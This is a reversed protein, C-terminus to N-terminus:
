VFPAEESHASTLTSVTVLSGERDIRSRQVQEGTLALFCTAHKHRQRIDLFNSERARSQRAFKRNYPTKGPFTTPRVPFPQRLFRPLVTAHRGPKSPHGLRALSVSGEAPKVPLLASFALFLCVCVCICKLLCVRFCAYVFVCAYVYLCMYESVCVHVWGCLCGCCVVLSLLLNPISCSSPFTLMRM